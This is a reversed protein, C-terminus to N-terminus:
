RLAMQEAPDPVHAYIFRASTLSLYALVLITGILSLKSTM